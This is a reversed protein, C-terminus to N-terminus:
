SSSISRSRAPTRRWLGACRRGSQPERPARFARGLSRRDRAHWRGRSDRNGAVHDIGAVPGPRLRGTQRAPQPDTRGDATRELDAGSLQGSNGRNQGTKRHPRAGRFRVAPGAPRAGSLRIRGKGFAERPWGSLRGDQTALWFNSFFRSFPQSHPDNGPCKRRQVVCPISGSSVGFWDSAWGVPSRRSRRRSFGSAPLVQLPACVGRCTCRRCSRARVAGNRTRPRRCSWRRPARRTEAVVDRDRM